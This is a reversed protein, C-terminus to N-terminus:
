AKGIPTKIEVDTVSETILSEVYKQITLNDLAAKVRLKQHVDVSLDIHIKKRKPKGTEEKKM